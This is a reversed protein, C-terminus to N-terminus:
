KKRAEISATVARRAYRPRSGWHRAFAKSFAALDRYGLQFSIEKIPISTHQLIERAWEM